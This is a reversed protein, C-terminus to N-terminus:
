EISEIKTRYDVNSGTGYTTQLETEFLEGVEQLFVFALKQPYKREALCMLVVGQKTM